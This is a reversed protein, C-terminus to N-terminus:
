ISWRRADDKGKIAETINIAALYLKKFKNAIQELENYYDAVPGTGKEKYLTIADPNAKLQTKKKYIEAREKILREKEAKAQNLLKNLEGASKDKLNEKTLNELTFNKNQEMCKTTTFIYLSGIAIAFIIKKM